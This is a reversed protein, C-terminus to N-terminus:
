ADTALRLDRLLQLPHRVGHRPLRVIHRVSAYGGFVEDAVQSRTVIDIEAGPWTAEIERLLPTMLLTNGLSHSARCLLIRFVGADPLTEVTSQAGADTAPAIFNQRSMLSNMM